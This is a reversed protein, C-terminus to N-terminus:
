SNFVLQQVLLLDSHLDDGEHFTRIIISRRAFIKRIGVDNNGESLRRRMFYTQWFIAVM